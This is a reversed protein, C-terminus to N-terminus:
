RRMGHGRMESLVCRPRLDLTAGSKEAATIQDSLEAAAAAVDEKGAAIRFTEQLNEEGPRGPLRPGKQVELYIEDYYRIGAINATNCLYDSEDDTKLHIFAM